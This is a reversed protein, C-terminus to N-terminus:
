TESETRHRAVSREQGSELKPGERGNIDRAEDEEADGEPQEHRPFNGAIEMMVPYRVVPHFRTEKEFIVSKGPQLWPGALPHINM